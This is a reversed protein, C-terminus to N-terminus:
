IAHYAEEFRKYAFAVDNPRMMCLDSQTLGALRLAQKAKPDAEFIIKLGGRIGATSTIKQWMDKLDAQSSVGTDSKRKAGALVAKARNRISKPSAIIGGKWKDLDVIAQDIAEQCAEMDGESMTLLDYMTPWWDYRLKDREIPTDMPIEGLHTVECFYRKLRWINGALQQYHDLKLGGRGHREERERVFLMLQNWAEQVAPDKSGSPSPKPSADLRPPPSPSPTKKNNNPKRTEITETGMGRQLTPVNPSMIESMTPCEQPCEATNDGNTITGVSRQNIPVISVSPSMTGLQPSMKPSMAGSEPSMAGSEPPLTGNNDGFPSPPPSITGMGSQFMPVIDSLLPSSAGLQPSSTGLQPPMGDLAQPAITGMLASMQASLSTVMAVLQANNHTLVDVQQRLLAVQQALEGNAKPLNQGQESYTGAQDQNAAYAPGGTGGDDIRKPMDMPLLIKYFIRTGRGSGTKRVSLEGEEVLIAVKRSVTDKNCQALEALTRLSPWCEGGDPPTKRAIAIFVDQAKRDQRCVRSHDYVAEM